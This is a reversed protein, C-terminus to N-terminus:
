DLQIELDEIFMTMIAKADEESDEQNMPGFIKKTLDHLPSELGKTRSMIAKISEVACIIDYVSDYNDRIDFGYNKMAEIIDAMVTPAFDDIFDEDSSIENTLSDFKEQMKKMKIKQLDIVNDSM